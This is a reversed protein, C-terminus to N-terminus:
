ETAQILAMLYRRFKEFDSKKHDYKRLESEILGDLDIENPKLYTNIFYVKETFSLKSLQKYQNVIQKDLFKFTSLFKVLNDSLKDIAEKNTISM